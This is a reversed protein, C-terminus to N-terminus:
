PTLSYVSTATGSFVASRERHSADGVIETALDLVDSYGARLLCVPWDSGFMVRGAGFADLVHRGYPLVDEATWAGPPCETVLGSLKCAVNPLEALASIWRAWGDWEGGIDPKGAHDLVFMTSPARRALELAAARQPGRVLLDYTLGRETAAALGRAVDPRLLWAPDPEDQALHRLGRLAGGGPAAALADLDDAVAPSTLDAWGVVATVPGPGAAAALLDLTEAATGLAQVAVTATGSPAADALDVTGFDRRITALRPDDLWGHDHRDLSWLHHHADVIM